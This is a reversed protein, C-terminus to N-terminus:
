DSCWVHVDKYDLNPSICRIPKLNNHKLSFFVQSDLLNMLVVSYLHQLVVNLNINSYIFVREYAQKFTSEQM